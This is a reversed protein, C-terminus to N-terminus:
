SWGRPAPTRWSGRRPRSASRNSGAACRDPLGGAVPQFEARYQRQNELGRLLSLQFDFQRGSAPELRVEFGDPGVTPRLNLQRGTLLQLTDDIYPELFDAVSDRALQDIM